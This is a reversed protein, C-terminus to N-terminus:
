YNSVSYIAEKLLSSKKEFNGLNIVRKLIISKM